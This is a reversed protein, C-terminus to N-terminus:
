AEVSEWSALYVETAKYEQKSKNYKYTIHLNAFVQEKLALGALDVSEDVQMKVRYEALGPVVVFWGTHNDRDARRIQVLTREYKEIKEAPKPPEYTDPSFKITEPTISLQDNGDLIIQAQDDLKAARVLKVSNEALKKQNNISKEIVSQVTEEEMNLTDAVFNIVTNNNGSISSTAQETSDSPMAQVVGHLITATIASAILAPIIIKGDAMGTMERLKDVWRNFGEENKFFYRVIFKEKLSGAAITEIDIEVREIESSQTLGNLVFPTEGVVCELAELSEIIKRIPVYNNNTYVLEHGGEYVYEKM